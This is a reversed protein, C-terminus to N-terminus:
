AGPPAPVSVPAPSQPAAAEALLSLQLALADLAETISEASTLVAAAEGAKFLAHATDLKASLSQLQVGLESIQADSLAGRAHLAIAVDVVGVFAIDAQALAARPSKPAVQEFTACAGALALPACALSLALAISRM